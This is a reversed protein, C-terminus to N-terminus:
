MQYNPIFGEKVAGFVKTIIDSAYDSPNERIKLEEQEVMYFLGDLAKETAFQSLDEDVPSLNYGVLAAAIQVASNNVANNYKGTLNSWAENASIDNILDKNLSDNIKPKYIEVLQAYTKEKLYETAANQEGCVIKIGDSVTMNEIAESFIPVVDKAADEASRNIGLIVKEFLTTDVFEGVVPVTGVVTKIKEGAPPLPIQLESKYYGDTASLTESSAEAGVNLATKMADIAEENTFYSSDVEELWGLIDELYTCSFCFLSVICILAIFKVKMFNM